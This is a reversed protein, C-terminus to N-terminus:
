FKIVMLQVLPNRTVVHTIFCTFSYPAFRATHKSKEVEEWAAARKEFEARELAEKDANEANHRKREPEDKSAWAAINTKGLQMGLALIERRTKLKMEDASLEKKGNETMQQLGIPSQEIPTPAPADRRPTSPISSTPSRLPSAGVPTATRSPEQSPVPTMETGMDRMSVARIAPIGSYHFTCVKKEHFKFM